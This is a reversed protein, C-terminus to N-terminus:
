QYVPWHSLVDRLVEVSEFVKMRLEVSLKEKNLRAAIVECCVVGPFQCVIDNIHYTSGNLDNSDNIRV